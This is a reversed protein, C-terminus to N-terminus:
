VSKRDIVTCQVQRIEGVRRGSEIRVGAVGVRMGSELIVGAVGVGRGVM